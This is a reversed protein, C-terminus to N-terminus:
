ATEVFVIGWKEANRVNGKGTTQQHSQFSGTQQHHTIPYPRLSSFPCLQLLHELHGDNVAVAM